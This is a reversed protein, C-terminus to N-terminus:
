GVHQQVNERSKAVTKRLQEEEERLCRKFEALKDRLQEYLNLKRSAIDQVKEVYFDIDYDDTEQV